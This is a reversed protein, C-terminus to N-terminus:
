YNSWGGFELVGYECASSVHLLLISGRAWSWMWSAQRCIHNFVMQKCGNAVYDEYNPSPICQYDISYERITGYMIGPGSDGTGVAVM